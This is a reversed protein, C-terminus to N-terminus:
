IIAIIQKGLEVGFNNGYRAQASNVLWQIDQIGEACHVVMMKDKIVVNFKM